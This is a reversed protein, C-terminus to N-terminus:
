EKPLFIKSVLSAGTIKVIDGVIFPAFGMIILEAPGLVVGTTFYTFAYLGLLGPVYILVFNSIGVVGLMRWFNRSQAYNESIYGIFYTALLFGVFYGCTAGFLVEIGGTMGSFWPIITAGLGIYLIQSFVGYKKGLLLGAILVAFTQGTIPVPTFPLPIVIQAMIGTLCAMLISLIIKQTTTSEQIKTFILDRKTYYNDITVNM